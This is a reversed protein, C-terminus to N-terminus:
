INEMGAQCAAFGARYSKSEIERMPLIQCEDKRCIGVKAPNPFTCIVVGDEDDDESLMIIEVIGREDADMTGTLVGWQWAHTKADFRHRANYQDIVEIDTARDTM